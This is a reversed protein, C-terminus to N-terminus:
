LSVEQLKLMESKVHSAIGIGGLNAINKGYENMMMSQYIEKSEANGFLSDGVSEGFMMGLMQALFVAEFDKAAADIQAETMKRARSGAQLTAMAALSSVDKQTALLAASHSASLM